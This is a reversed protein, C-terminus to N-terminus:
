PTRKLRHHSRESRSMGAWDEEIAATAELLQPLLAHVEDRSLTVDPVSISVAAVITGGADRLPAAICNIFSEHESSDEAWGRDRVKQLVEGFAVPDTITNATFPRFDTAALAEALRREPLESALVKGVGTAHLPAPLGIRSYMRVAHTSEVKGIYIPQANELMALHVAQGGTAKGLEELHPMAVDRIQHQQLSATGLEFLRSGLSFQHRDDRRVFRDAELTQLLRLATSKHVGLTVSLEDLSKPGEGLEGLIALARQLSQSM